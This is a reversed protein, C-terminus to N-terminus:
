AVIASTPANIPLVPLYNATLWFDRILRVLDDLQEVNSPKVLFSNAGLRYAEHIDSQVNSSSFVVVPLTKLLPQNRIWKLVDLGMIYPLKLDMLVLCPLPFKERDSYEEQGALYAVAQHGDAVIQLAQKVDQKKWARRMFFVDDDRDEVLLVTGNM